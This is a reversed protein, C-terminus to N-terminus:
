RTKAKRSEQFTYGSFSGWDRYRRCHQNTQSPNAGRNAATTHRTVLVHRRIGRSPCANWLCYRGCAANSTLDPKRRPLGEDTLQGAGLLSLLHSSRCCLPSASTVASLQLTTFGRCQRTLLKRDAWVRAIHVVHSKLELGERTCLDHWLDRYTSNLWLGRLPIPIHV